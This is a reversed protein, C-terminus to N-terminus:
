KSTNTLRDVHKIDTLATLTAGQTLDFNTYMYNQLHLSALLLIYM